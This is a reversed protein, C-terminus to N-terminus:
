WQAGFESEVADFTRLLAFTPLSKQAEICDPRGGADFNGFTRL